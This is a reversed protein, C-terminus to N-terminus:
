SEDNYQNFAKVCLVYAGVCAIMVIGTIILENLMM